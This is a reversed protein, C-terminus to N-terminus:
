VTTDQALSKGLCEVRAHSSERRILKRGRSEKSRVIAKDIEARVEFVCREERAAGLLVILSDLNQFNLAM